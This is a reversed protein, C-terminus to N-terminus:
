YQSLYALNSEELVRFKIREKGKIFKMLEEFKKSDSDMRKVFNIAKIHFEQIDKIPIM